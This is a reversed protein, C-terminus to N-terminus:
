WVIPLISKQKSSDILRKVFKLSRTINLRKTTIFDNSKEISKKIARLQIVSAM